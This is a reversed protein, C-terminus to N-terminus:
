YVPYIDIILVAPIRNGQFQKEHARSYCVAGAPVRHHGGGNAGHGPRVYDQWTEQGIVGGLLPAPAPGAQSGVLTPAPSSHEQGCRGQAQCDNLVREM